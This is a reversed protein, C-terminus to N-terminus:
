GAMAETASVTAPNRGTVIAPQSRGFYYTIKPFGPSCFVRTETEANLIIVAKVGVDLRRDVEASGSVDAGAGAGAM